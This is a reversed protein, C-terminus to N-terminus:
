RLADVFAAPFSFQAAVSTLAQKFVDQQAPTLEAIVAGMAELQGKVEIGLAISDEREVKAAAMAAVSLARQEDASLSAYFDADAVIATLFLSHNTETIHNFSSSDALASFRTYTTEVFDAQEGAAVPAAGFARIVAEAVPGGGTAVTKGALDAPSALTSTKSALIRFGGSLTFALGHVGSEQLGSLLQAGQEGDLVPEAAAFDAFLYPLHLVGLPAYDEALSVTYTSSLDVTGADMLERVQAYPVDAEALGIDEPAVVTLLLSGGSERRLTDAFVDAAREYLVRPEHALLWTVEKPEVAEGLVLGGSGFYVVGLLVAGAVVALGTKIGLSQM